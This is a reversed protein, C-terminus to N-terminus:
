YEDNQGQRANEITRVRESVFKHLRGFPAFRNRLFERKILSVFAHGLLASIGAGLLTSVGDVWEPKRGAIVDQGILYLFYSEWGIAVITALCLVIFAIWRQMPTLATLM